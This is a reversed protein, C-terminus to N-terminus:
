DTCGGTREASLLARIHIEGDARDRGSLNMQASVATGDERSLATMTGYLRRGERLCTLVFSLAGPAGSIDSVECTQGALDEALFAAEAPRICRTSTEVQAPLETREEDTVLTITITATSKWEGPRVVLADAMATSASWVIAIGLMWSRM